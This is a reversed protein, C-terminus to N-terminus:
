GVDVAEDDDFRRDVTVCPAHEDLGEALFPEIVAGPRHDLGVTGVTGCATEDSQVVVEVLGVVPVDRHAM